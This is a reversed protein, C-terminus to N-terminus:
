GAGPAACGRSATCRTAAPSSTSRAPRSGPSAGGPGEGSLVRAVGDHNPDTDSRLDSRYEFEGGADAAQLLLTTTFQSRDFHWGLGEGSRYEMVNIRALADQMLYLAPKGMVRALFAPLPPWEYIRRVVSGTLQDNCLTHNVTEILALAPHEPALGAVRETFYVNHRRSQTHSARASLPELEAVASAIAGPRVLGELNCMGNAALEAQCRAVLAALEPSGARDLPYRDIDLIEEM